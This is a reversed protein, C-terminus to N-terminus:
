GRERGCIPRHRVGGCSRGRDGVRHPQSAAAVDPGLVRRTDYPSLQLSELVALDDVVMQFRVLILAM